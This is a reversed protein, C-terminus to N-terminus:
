VPIEPEYVIRDIKGKGENELIRMDNNRFFVANGKLILPVPMDLHSLVYQQATCTKACRGGAAPRSLREEYTYLCQRSVTIYGFPVYLSFPIPVAGCGKFSTGQLLNDIEVRGINAERLFDAFCSNVGCERFRERVTEPLSHIVTLIRPGRKQKSLLRGLVPRFPYERAVRLVGWDNVIVEAPMGTARVTDFLGKIKRLTENTQYGTMLSFDLRREKVFSLVEDLERSSPVLRECFENGFYIRSYEPTWYGLGATTTIYLAKEM